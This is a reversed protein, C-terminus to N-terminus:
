AGGGVRYADAEGSEVRISSFREAREAVGGEPAVLRCKKFCGRFKRCAYSDICPEALRRVAPWQCSM